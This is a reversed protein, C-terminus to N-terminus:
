DGQQWGYVGFRAEPPIYGLLEANGNRIRNIVSRITFAYVKDVDQSNYRNPLSSIKRNASKLIENVENVIRRNEDSLLVERADANKLAKEFSVIILLWPLHSEPVQRMNLNRYFENIKNSAEEEEKKWENEALWFPHRSTTKPIVDPQVGKPKDVTKEPPMPPPVDKKTKDDTKEPPMTPQVDKKPKDDSKGANNSPIEPPMPPPVDKKPKDDSKVANNSPMEQQPTTIRKYKEQAAISSPTFDSDSPTKGFIDKIVAKQIDVGKLMLIPKIEPPKVKDFAKKGVLSNEIDAMNKNRNINDYLYELQTKPRYLKGDYGSKWNYDKLLANLSNTNAIADAGWNFIQGFVGRKLAALARESRTYGTADKIKGNETEMDELIEEDTLEVLDEKKYRGLVDNNREENFFYPYNEILWEHFQM